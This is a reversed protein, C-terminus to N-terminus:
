KIDFLKLNEILPEGDNIIDALSDSFDIDRNTKYFKTGSLKVSKNDDIINFENAIIKELFEEKWADQLVLHSGKPEIFIQYIFDDDELYLIFDPMFGRIGDFERLTIRTNKEDNRILYMVKYKEKIKEAFENIYHILSLELRNVIAENYVYWDPINKKNVTIIQDIDKKNPNLVVSYDKIVDSIKIARFDKTGKEKMYNRRFKDACYEFYEDLISLKENSTLDTIDKEIPLKVEISINGFFNENKILETKSNIIPIYKKLNSFQYFSNRQMAKKIYRIDVKLAETHSNVNYSSEDNSLINEEVNLGSKDVLYSREIGYSELNSFDDATTTITENLFLSRSKYIYSKKFQEKLTATVVEKDGETESVLNIADLSKHLNNLYKSDNTTHYHLEELVRMEDATQDFRRVQSKEGNYIYPYYRAGRGILQAEADTATSTISATEGIRVIDYLNLVDWGENLKAVAFIARIPNDREELTNLLRANSENIMPSSDKKDNKNVNIINMSSFDDKIEEILKDLCICELYYKYVKYMVNNKSLSIIRSNFFDKINDTNMNELIKNFQIEKENSIAIKNSKFMVVPKFDSVNNNRAIIKRYQSLFVADMMKYNDDTDSQLRMVNKSFGDNMYKRLDYSYVIKDSYKDSINKDSMNLTATFEFLKNKTNSDLIKQITYEWTQEEIDTKNLKKSKTLSNYHHAEDGLLIVNIEKLDEYTLANEKYTSENMDNHLGHITTLKLYITNKSPVSPFNDVYEIFIRSGDMIVGKPNFLYKSSQENFMNEKTKQIIADSNVFFIYNQYNYKKFMYLILSAMVMTKGSGTAMNYLLHKNQFGNNVIESANEENLMYITNRLSQKQYERLEDKLNNTIYSPIDISTNPIYFGQQNPNLWEYLRKKSMVMVM